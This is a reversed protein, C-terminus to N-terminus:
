ILIYDFVIAYSYSNSFFNKKLSKIFLKKKGFLKADSVEKKALHAALTLPTLNRKNMMQLKAGTDYCLKLM